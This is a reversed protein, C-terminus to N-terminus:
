ILSKYIKELKDLAQEINFRKINILGKDIWYGREDENLTIVNQLVGAANETWFKKENITLPMRNILFAADGAVEIMPAENTTIVITGSAMAEAIPWGFGEALSPFLFVTAGAYALHVIEDNLESLLYIDKHYPSKCVRDMITPSAINGIMLLPIENRYIQRWEDYIDVVGCRNKYWQNGGVHLIYGNSLPIGLKESLSNITHKLPLPKINPNIGNYVVDSFVPKNKLFITLDEKTKQSVSIFNKGQIYGNRIYQQYKRGSFSTIINNANDKIANAQALFDHCHIVHNKKELLPVYPGLAHDTIIYLVGSSSNKLKKRIQIPFVLYQDIYGLWKKLRKVNIKSFFAAPRWIDVEHGRREMGDSIMTVYRPMSQSPLFLPHAIFVLKM